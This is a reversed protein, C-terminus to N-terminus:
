VGYVSHNAKLILSICTEVEKSKEDCLFICEGTPFDKHRGVRGSIQILSAADFVIHNALFVIVHVNKFTVGRELITTCCLFQFEENTFRHIIEDKDKTKSTIMEIKFLTSFITALKISPVFIMTQHRKTKLLKMLQIILVLKYHCIVKPVVLPNKFPREYLTVHKLKGQKLWTRHQKSPTATLYIIYGVVANLVFTELLKNNKYPFADPEDLILLDIQKHYRYLQHTTCIVLPAHVRKTHGECVAIVDMNKFVDTLRDVLQLVVQRRPIAWVVKKNQKLAHMISELVLESKGAGCVAEVLVDSEKCLIAINKSAEKQKDTLSFSLKYDIEDYQIENSTGNNQMLSVYSLCVRCIINNNLTFFAHRNENKCYECVM